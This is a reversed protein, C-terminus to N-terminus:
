NKDKLLLNSGLSIFIEKRAEINKDVKADAFIAAAKEAFNFGREAIELWNEVRKDTDRLLESMKDKERLLSEKRKKFEDETLENNMRMDILADIRRVCSEYERRQAGYMRDRDDVETASMEKLRKLAWEKFDPPITVTSLADAIQKELQNEEIAPQACPINTHRTCHYYTYSHVNGNQQRKIKEEATIMAGCHGCRMPGRYAITHEKQRPTGKRGLLM